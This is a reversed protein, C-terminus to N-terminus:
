ESIRRRAGEVVGIEFHVRDSVGAGAARERAVISGEHYDSGVFTSSPLGTGDIDDLGTAADWTQCAPGASWSSSSVTLHRCGPHCSTPTTAPGSSASAARTYTAKYLGLKDGMVVLATNLTAGVEGM